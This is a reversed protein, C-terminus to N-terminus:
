SNALRIAPANRRVPDQQAGTRFELAAQKWFATSCSLLRNNDISINLSFQWSDMTPSLPLGGDQQLVDLEPFDPVKFNDVLSHPALCAAPAQNDPGDVHPIAAPDVQLPQFDVVDIAAEHLLLTPTSGDEDVVPSFPHRGTKDVQPNLIAVEIAALAVTDVETAIGVPIGPVGAQLHNEGVKWM